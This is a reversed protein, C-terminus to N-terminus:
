PKIEAKPGVISPFRVYIYDEDPNKVWYFNKIRYKRLLSSVDGRFQPTDDEALFVIFGEGLHGACSGATTFGRDNLAKVLDRIEWDVDTFGLERIRQVHRQERARTYKPQERRLTKVVLVQDEHSLKSFDERFRRQLKTQEEVVRSDREQQEKPLKYFSRDDGQYSRQRDLEEAQILYRIVWEKLESETM